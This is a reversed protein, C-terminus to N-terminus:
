AGFDPRQHLTQTFCDTLVETLLLPTQARFFRSQRAFDNANPRSLQFDSRALHPTNFLVEGLPQNGLQKLAYWPNGPMLDPIVTRAYVWTQGQCHLRVTRVWCHRDPAVQLAIAEQRTPRQYGEDMVTVYLMPCLRRLGQTLSGRDSLWPRLARPPALRQMLHVPQWRTQALAQRLTQVTMERM